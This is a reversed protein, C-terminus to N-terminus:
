IGENEQVDNTQEIEDPEQNNSIIIKECIEIRKQSAKLLSEYQSREKELKEIQKTLNKKATEDELEDASLYKKQQQQQTTTIQQLKNNNGFQQNQQTSPTSCNTNM